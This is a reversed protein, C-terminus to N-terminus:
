DLEQKTQCVGELGQEDEEEGRRGGLEEELGGASAKEDIQYETFESEIQTDKSQRQFYKM